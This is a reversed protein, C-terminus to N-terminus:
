IQALLVSVTVSPPLDSQMHTIAIAMLNEGTFFFIYLTRFSLNTKNNQNGTVPLVTDFSMMYIYFVLHFLSQITSNVLHFVENIWVM